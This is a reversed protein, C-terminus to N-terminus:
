KLLVEAGNLWNPTDFLVAIIQIMVWLTILLNTITVNAGTLIWELAYIIGWFIISPLSLVGLYYGINKDSEMINLKSM